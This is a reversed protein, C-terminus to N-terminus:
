GKLETGCHPCQKNKRPVRAHCVPCKFTTLSCPECFPLGASMIEGDCYPCKKKSDTCEAM